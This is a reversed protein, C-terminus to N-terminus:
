GGNQVTVRSVEPTPQSAVAVVVLSGDRDLVAFSCYVTGAAGECARLVLGEPPGIEAAQDVAEPTALLGLARPAEGQWAEVFLRAVDEPAPERPVLRGGIMEFLYPDSCGLSASLLPQVAVIVGTGSDLVTFMCVGQEATVSHWFFGSADGVGVQSVPAGEEDITKLFLSATPMDADGTKEAVLEVQFGDAATEGLVADPGEASALTTAPPLSTSPASFTSVSTDSPSVPPAVAAGPDSPDGPSRLIVPLIILALAALAGAGAFALRTPWQRRKRVSPAVRPPPVVLLDAATSLDERLQQELSM